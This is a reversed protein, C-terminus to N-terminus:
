RWITKIISRVTLIRISHNTMPSIMGQFPNM